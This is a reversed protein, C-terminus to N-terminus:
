FANDHRIVFMTRFLIWLDKGMSWDRLYELDSSLRNTLDASIVTAGRFGRVQALGTVGPKVAHRHRYRVDIEWYLRDAARASLAHPRPGVMSMDGRLVNILQPLEDISNRRIFQGVRTVRSDGRRTLVEASPDRQDHYMSRFKLMMFLTNDRGIRQQRFLVPGPSELRIAIAIAILLPALTLLGISSVVIDFTRKVIRDRLHLPGASVVLTRRAGYHSVGIMGIRDVEPTLIEGDVAMSKLVHAWAVVREDRCAILVRDAHAILKALQHYHVPDETQPDFGIREVDIVVSHPEATWHMGDVVVVTSFPTGGLRRLLLRGLILRGAVLLAMTGLSGTWFVLRSFAAGVKFSYAIILLASAALALARIAKFAGVRPDRLVVGNYSGNVAATWLYIPLMVSLMTTGHVALWNGIFVANAALFSTTIAVVDAAALMAYSRIRRMEMNGIPVLADTGDATQEYRFDSQANM